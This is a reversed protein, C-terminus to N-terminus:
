RKVSPVSTERYPRGRHESAEAFHYAFWDAAAKSVEELAGPEEFLHTAGPIILLKKESCGIEQLAARNIGIVPEDDGGVILLTPSRVASLYDGALDPRGGRSVVARVLRQFKAAAVLAAGAGTSAGFYGIKLKRTPPAGMIWKTAGILRNALFPIDFRFEANYRDISEEEQTLLDFLLTGIRRSYLVEAVYQNRPSRRSSGSGHAFLVLGDAHDPLRLTGYLSAGEVDISVELNSNATKEKQETIM